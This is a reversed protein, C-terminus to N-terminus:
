VKNTPPISFQVKKRCYFKFYFKVGPVPPLHFSSTSNQSNEDKLITAPTFNETNSACSDTSNQSLLEVGMDQLIDKTRETTLAWNMKTHSQNCAEPLSSAKRKRSVSIENEKQDSCSAKRQVRKKPM